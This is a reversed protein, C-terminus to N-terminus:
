NITEVFSRVINKLNFKKRTIELEKTMSTKSQIAEKIKDALATSSVEETIYGCTASKLLKPLDGVPMTIVPRKVQMADSFIVPISEIRSPIIVYDSWVLLEAAGFKDQYGSLNVPRYFRVSQINAKQTKFVIM